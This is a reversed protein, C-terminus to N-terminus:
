VFHRVISDFYIVFYLLPVINGLILTPVLWLVAAALSGENLYILFTFLFLGLYLDIMVQRGWKLSFVARCSKWFNETRICYITYGTFAILAVLAIGRVMAM